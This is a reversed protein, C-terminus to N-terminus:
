KDEIDYILNDIHYDALQENVCTVLELVRNFSEDNVVTKWELQKLEANMSDFIKRLPMNIINERFLYNNALLSFGRETISVMLLCEDIQADSATLEKQERATMLFERNLTFWTDLLQRTTSIRQHSAHKWVCPIAALFQVGGEDIDMHQRYVWIMQMAIFREAFSYRHQSIERSTQVGWKGIYRNFLSVAIDERNSFYNYLTNVSCGSQRALELLSLSFLGNEIIAKEASDLIASIRQRKLSTRNAM